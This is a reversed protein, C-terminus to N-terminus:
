KIVPLLDHGQQRWLVWDSSPSLIWIRGTVMDPRHPPLPAPCSHKPAPTHSSRAKLCHHYFALHPPKTFVPSLEKHRRNLNEDNKGVCHARSRPEPRGSRSHSNYPLPEVELLWVLPVCHLLQCPVPVQKESFGKNTGLPGFWSQKIPCSISPTILVTRRYPGSPQM